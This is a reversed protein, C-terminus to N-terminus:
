NGAADARSFYLSVWPSGPANRFEQPGAQVLEPLSRLYEVLPGVPTSRSYTPDPRVTLYWSMAVTGTISSVMRGRGGRVKANRPLQESFFDHHSGTPHRLDKSKM